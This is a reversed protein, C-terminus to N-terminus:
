SIARCLTTYKGVPILLCPKSDWDEVKYHQAFTKDM